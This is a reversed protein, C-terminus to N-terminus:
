NAEYEVEVLHDPLLLGTGFKTRQIELVADQALEYPSAPAYLDIRDSKVSDTGSVHMRTALATTGLGDTGRYYLTLYATNTDAGTV